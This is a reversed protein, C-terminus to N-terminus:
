SSIDESLMRWGTIFYLTCVAIYLFEKNVLWTVFCIIAVVVCLIGSLFIEKKM